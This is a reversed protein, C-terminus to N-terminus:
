SIGILQYSPFWAPKCSLDHLHVIPLEVIKDLLFLFTQDNNEFVQAAQMM